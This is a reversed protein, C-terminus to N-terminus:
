RLLELALAYALKSPVANGIMKAYGKRRTRGFEFFDPFFQLRAAERSTIVRRRLPHLFRGQGMVQFGTTITWAPQDWYLRGYVSKYTHSKTRHCDPRLEDPLDYEDNDFLWDIRDRSVASVATVADMPDDSSVDLLDGIAWGVSREPRAYQQVLRRLFGEGVTSSLSAVIVARHRRQPVGLEEAPVKGAEVRYGLKALASLTRDFVRSRDHRVGPVNEIVVHDPGIVETFRAMRDYLANKPDERRTHNNLDSHGQCPPGGVVLHVHGLERRLARETLSLPSGLPADVFDEVARSEAILPSFNREYTALAEGDIDAALVHEVRVNLARGAEDLGVSMGGAGCFLDVVRVTGRAGPSEFRHRSRLWSLDFAAAPDLADEAAVRPVSSEVTEGTRTRISRVLRDSEVRYSEVGGIAPDDGCSEAGTFLNQQVSTASM